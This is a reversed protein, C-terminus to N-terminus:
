ARRKIFATIQVDYSIDGGSLKNRFKMLGQEFDADILWAATMGAATTNLETIVTTDVIIELPTINADVKCIAIGVLTGKPIPHGRNIGYAVSDIGRYYSGAATYGDSGSLITIQSCSLWKSRYGDYCMEEYIVTNYYKDGGVAAPTIPDATLSGYQKPNTPDLGSAAHSSAHATPYRDDSLRPDNGQCFYGDGTGFAPLEHLHDARALYESSGEANIGGIILSSPITTDIDHKHDSRAADSAIGASAASKNVNDPATITLRTGKPYYPM